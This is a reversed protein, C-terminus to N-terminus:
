MDTLIIRLQKNESLGLSRWEELPDSKSGKVTEIRRRGRGKKWWERGRKRDKEREEEEGKRM